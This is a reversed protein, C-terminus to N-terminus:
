VTFTTVEDAAGHVVMDASSDVHSAKSFPSSPVVRVMVASVFVVAASRRALTMMTQAPSVSLMSTTCSAPLSLRVTFLSTTLKSRIPPVCFSVYAALVLSTVQSSSSSVGHSVKVVSLMSCSTVRRASGLVPLTRLALSIRCLPFASNSTVTVCAPM